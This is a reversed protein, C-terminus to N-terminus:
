PAREANVPAEGTETSASGLVALGVMVVGFLVVVAGAALLSGRREADSPDRPLEDPDTSASSYLREEPIM